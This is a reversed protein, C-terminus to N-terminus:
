HFQSLVSVPLTTTFISGLYKLGQSTSVKNPSGELAVFSNPQSAVVFRSSSTFSIISLSIECAFFSKNTKFLPKLIFGGFSFGGM